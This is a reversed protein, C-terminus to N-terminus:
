TLTLLYKTKATQGSLEQAMNEVDCYHNKGAWEYLKYSWTQLDSIISDATGNGIPDIKYSGVRKNMYGMLKEVVDDKFTQIYEYLSGLANHEAYSKTQWHLLHIQEQFYTLKSVVNELTIDNNVLMSKPFIELEAM